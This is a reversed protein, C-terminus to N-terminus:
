GRVERTRYKRNKTHHVHGNRLYRIARALKGVMLFSVSQFSRDISNSWEDEILEISTNLIVIADLDSKEM